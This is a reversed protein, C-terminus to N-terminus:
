GGIRPGERASQKGSESGSGSEAASRSWATHRNRCPSPHNKRAGPIGHRPQPNKATSRVSHLPSVGGQFLAARHSQTVTLSGPTWTRTDFTKQRPDGPSYWMRRLYWSPPGPPQEPLFTFSTLAFGRSVHSSILLDSKSPSVPEQLPPSPTPAPHCRPLIRLTTSAM